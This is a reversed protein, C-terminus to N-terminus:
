TVDVTAGCYITSNEPISPIVVNMTMYALLLDFIMLQRSLGKNHFSTLVTKKSNPSPLKNVTM